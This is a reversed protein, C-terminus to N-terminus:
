PPPREIFKSADVNTGPLMSETLYPLTGIHKIYKQNRHKIADLRFKELIRKNEEDKNM